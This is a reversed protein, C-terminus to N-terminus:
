NNKESDKKKKRGRKKSVVVELGSLLPAFLIGYIIGMFIDDMILWGFIFGLAFGSLLAIEIEKKTKKPDIQVVKDDFTVKTYAQLSVYNKAENLIIVNYKDKVEEAVDKTYVTKIHNLLKNNEIEEIEFLYLGKIKGKKIIAFIRGEDKETLEKIENQINEDVKLIETFLKDKKAKLKGIAIIDHGDILGISELFKGM